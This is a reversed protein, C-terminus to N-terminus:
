ELRPVKAPPPAGSAAAASAGGSAGAAADAGGATPRRRVVKTVAAAFGGTAPAPPPAAQLSGNFALALRLPPLLRAALVGARGAASESKALEEVLRAYRADPTFDAGAGRPARGGSSLRRTRAFPM